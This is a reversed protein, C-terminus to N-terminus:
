RRERVVPRTVRSEGRARLRDAGALTLRRRFSLARSAAQGWEAALKAADPRAYRRLSRLDRHGSVLALRLPDLGAEALRSLSEHRLSHFVTHHVADDANLRADAIAKEFWFCVTDALYPFVREGQHLQREIIELPDIRPWGGNPRLLPVTEVRDPEKPHKRKITAVRRDADIEDWRLSVIEGRRMGTALAFETIDCLPVHTRPELARLAALLREIETDSLRRKRERSVVRMGDDEHLSRRADGPASADVANGGKCAHRLVASAYSLEAAVTQSAAGGRIRELAHGRWFAPTLDPLPVLGHRRKLRELGNAFTKGPSRRLSARHEIFADIADALLTALSQPDPNIFDGTEIAVEQAKAWSQAAAKTSFTKCVHRGDLRVRATWRTARKGKGKRKRGYFTAL